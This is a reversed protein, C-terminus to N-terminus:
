FEDLAKLLAKDYGYVDAYSKVVGTSDPYLTYYNIYVPVKPDFSYSRMYKEKDTNEKYKRGAQTLPAKDIAVRIKDKLLDSPNDMLFIALDLPKQVRVCGHSVARVARNFAGPSNTDHLYVSFRNPFRFILRGLSNGAGRDQRLGYRGSKWESASLSAASLEKGTSHEIAVMRNRSFYGADGTHRPAVENKIISMPVNWYPNLDLRNIRSNLLPTRHDAKGCCVKMRLTAKKDADCAELEFTPINVFVYKGTNGPREYRWRMREINLRALGALSKDGKDVARQYERCLQYFVSDTPQVDALFSKMEGADMMKQLAEACFSGTAVEFPVDYINKYAEDKSSGLIKNFVVNPRVYGYRQGYAYRMYARTLRYELRGLLETVESQTCSDPRLKRFARLDDAIEDVTFSAKSLGQSEVDALWELLVEPRGDMGFKNIWFFTDKASTDNPNVEYLAKIYADAYMEGKDVRAVSDMVERIRAGDFPFSPEESGGFASCSSFFLFSLFLLAITNRRM